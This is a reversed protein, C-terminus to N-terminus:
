EIFFTWGALHIWVWVTFECETLRLVLDVCGQTAGEKPGLLREAEGKLITPQTTTTLTLSLCSATALVCSVLTTTIFFYFHPEDVHVCLYHPGRITSPFPTGLHKHKKIIIIIIILVLVM